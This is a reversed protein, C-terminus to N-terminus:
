QQQWSKLVVRNGTSDDFDESGFQIIENEFTTMYVHQKSVFLSGRVKGSIEKPDPWKSPDTNLSLQRLLSRGGADAKPDASEMSGFSTVVWIQGDSFTPSSWVKEGPKLALKLPVFKNWLFPAIPPEIAMGYLTYFKEKQEPTLRGAETADVAFVHYGQDNSAWDAGGTGFILLVHGNNSIIAPSVSIPNGIGAYFLPIPVTGAKHVSEGATWKKEEAPDDTLALEWMRGNMDGVYIRDAFADGDIDFTTVAGPIDNVSDAYTSSFTWEKTGTMLDFAFVNIGGHNEAINVFSTAAYVMWKIEYTGTPKDNNDLVPVKIRDLAARFTYGMGGGPAATDTAEWLVDFNDPDTVDLAFISNGGFGQTGILITHWQGGYYIDKATPSGDVAAFNSEANPDTRDNQLRELLNSPIYAWKEVGTATEIAHLMGYLDGVYAVEKRDGGVRNDGARIIVPASHMIGGLKNHDQEVYAPPSGEYDWDRGRLREIVRIEGVTDGDGPTVDLGTELAAVNAADFNIKFWDDAIDDYAATYVKRGDSNGTKADVINGADATDWDAAQVKETVNFRRFHGYYSPHEFTGQYLWPHAVIPASRVYEYSTVMYKINFLTNLVYRVGALNKFSCDSNNTCGVDEIVVTGTDTTGAVVSPDRPITFDGSPINLVLKQPKGAKDDLYTYDQDTIKKIRLDDVEDEDWTAQNYGLNGAATQQAPTLENWYAYESFPWQQIDRHWSNEWMVETWGLTEWNVRDAATMEAWHLTTWVDKNWELEIVDITLAEGTLNRFDVKELAGGGKGDKTNANSFDIELDLGEKITSFDTTLDVPIFDTSSQAASGVTYKIKFYLAEDSLNENFEFKVTAFNPEAVVVITESTKADKTDKTDCTAYSHGGLYVVYGFDTNGYAYGGVFYDWDADDVVGQTGAVLSDDVTFRKVTPNYESNGGSVDPLVDFNYPDGAQYPRWSNLHGGQGQFKETFDGIQTYALDVNSYFVNPNNKDTGNHGFGKDALFHGNPNHEFTEISACEGLVSKGRKLYTQIEKVVDDQHAMGGTGDYNKEGVWHPAWLFDYNRAQLIPTIATGSDGAELGAIENPTVIEYSDSCIGALRLYGELISANGKTKDEGDNMLAIKPPTGRMDRFVPAAFAVQAVHVNVADWSAGNIIAKIEDEVGPALEQVDIIFLSGKYTVKNVSDGAAFAVIDTHNPAPGNNITVGAHDYEGVVASVVLEARAEDTIEIVLDTGDVETKQDNIIWSVGVTHECDEPDEIGDRLCQQDQHNLLYYALGYAELQGGDGVPQYFSDMPIIISGAPFNREYALAKLPLCAFAVLICIIFIKTKM